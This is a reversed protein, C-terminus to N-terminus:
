SGSPSADFPKKRCIAEHVAEPSGVELLFERQAGATNLCRTADWLSIM